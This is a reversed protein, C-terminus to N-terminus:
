DTGASSAARELEDILMPLGTMYTHIGIISALELVEMVEAATAGYGLANQIHLRLGPVYLHTASADFAIYILEKVKPELPGNAWPVSSFDIYSEFFDADLQLLENWFPHWYGRKEEFEARLRAHRDTLEPLAARGDDGLEEVLIPVGINCAHIGLTSTLQLVEVLEERTAGLELARRIHMRLGPEYLHTAAGDVAIYVLEKLKPELAGTRWPVASFNLYAEFFDPDVELMSQLTDSWFGRAEVYADRLQQERDNTSV